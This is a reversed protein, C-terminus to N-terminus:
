LRTRRITTAVGEQLWYGIQDSHYAWFRSRLDVLFDEKSNNETDMQIYCRILNVCSIILAVISRLVRRPSSFSYSPKLASALFRERMEDKIQGYLQESFQIRMDRGINGFHTLFSQSSALQEELSTYQFRVGIHLTCKIFSATFRM